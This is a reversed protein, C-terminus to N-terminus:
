NSIKIPLDEKAIAITVKSYTTKKLILEGRYSAILASPECVGYVGTHKFVFESKQVDSNFHRHLYFSDILEKPIFRINIGLKLACEILGIERKKIWASAILRIDSIDIEALKCARNIAEKIVSAKAGKVCGIGCVYSKTAETMTTIVPECGIISSIVCALHNAGGEHGSLVSIAYRGAEDLSVVAPDNYKDTIMPAIVRNVIGLSMIFILGDYKHFIDRLYISLKEFYFVEYNDSGCLPVYFPPPLGMLLHLEAGTESAIRAGIRSGAETVAFVALKYATTLTPVKKFM